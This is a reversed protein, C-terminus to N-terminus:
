CLESDLRRGCTLSAHLQSLLLEIVLSSLVAPALFTVTFVNLMTFFEM